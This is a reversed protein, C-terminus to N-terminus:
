RMSLSGNVRPKWIEWLLLVRHQGWEGIWIHLPSLM